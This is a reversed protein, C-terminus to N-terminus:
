DKKILSNIIEDELLCAEEVILKYINEVLDPNIALEDALKRRKALVEKVRGPQMMPIDKESKYKAVTKCIKLRESILRVIKEDIEDIRDRFNSLEEM